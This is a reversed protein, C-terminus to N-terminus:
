RAELATTAADRAKPYSLSPNQPKRGDLRWLYAYNGPHRVRRLTLLVRSLWARPEEGPQRPLIGM